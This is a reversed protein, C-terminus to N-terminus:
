LFNKLHALWEDHEAFRVHLQLVQRVARNKRKTIKRYLAARVKAAEAAVFAKAHKRTRM